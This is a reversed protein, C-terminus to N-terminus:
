FAARRGTSQRTLVAAGGVAVLGLLGAAYAAVGGFLIWFPRQEENPAVALGLAAGAVTDLLASGSVYQSFPPKDQGLGVFPQKAYPRQRYTIQNVGPTTYNPGHYRTPWPHVHPVLPNPVGGYTDGFISDREPIFRTQMPAFHDAAGMGNTARRPVRVRHTHEKDRTTTLTTPAGSSPFSVDHTHDFDRSTRVKARRGAVPAVVSHTHDKDRSTILKM